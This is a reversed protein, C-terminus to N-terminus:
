ILLPALCVYLTGETTETFHIRGEEVWRYITRETVRARRAAEPLPLMRGEDTCAACPLIAIEPTSGQRVIWFEHTEITTVTKHRRQRSM